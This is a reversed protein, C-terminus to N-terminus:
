PKPTLQGRIEGDPHAATHVQVYFGGDGIGLGAIPITGPAGDPNIPAVLPGTAGPGGQYAGADIGPTNPWFGEYTATGAAPDIIVGLTGADVLLVPTPVVEAGSLFATWIFQGPKLIQGRIEGSMFAATHVNVYTRGTALNQATANSVATSGSETMLDVAIGGNQTAWGDHIHLGMAVGADHEISWTLSYAGGDPDSLTFTGSGSALTVVQPNQQNGSLAAVYTGSFTPSGGATAGGATAGGATAGGATAGGATAGGATAGGATAGGATSGGATSGGAMSGGATSGGATSGGATGGATNMGGANGGPNGVECRNNNCTYQVGDTEFKKCDYKDVCEAACGAALVGLVAVAALARM